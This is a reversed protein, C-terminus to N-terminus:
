WWYYPRYRYRSYYGYYPYGYGAYYPYRWGWRPAYYYGWFNEIQDGFLLYLLVIAALIYLLQLQM